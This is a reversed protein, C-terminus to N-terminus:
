RNVTCPGPSPLLALPCTVTFAGCIGGAITSISGLTEVEPCLISARLDGRTTRPTTSSLEPSGTTVMLPIVAAKRGFLACAAPTQESGIVSSGPSLRTSILAVLGVFTCAVNVKIACYAGGTAGVGAGGGLLLPSAFASM